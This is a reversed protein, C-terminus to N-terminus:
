ATPPPAAVKQARGGWLWVEVIGIIAALAAFLEVLHQPLQEPVIVGIAALLAALSAWFAPNNLIAM